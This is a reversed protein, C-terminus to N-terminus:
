RGGVRIRRTSSTPRPLPIAAAFQTIMAQWAEREAALHDYRPGYSRPFPTSYQSRM